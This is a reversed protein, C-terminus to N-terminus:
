PDTRCSDTSFEINLDPSTLMNASVYLPKPRVGKYPARMLRIKQMMKSCTEVEKAFLEICLYTCLYTLSSIIEDSQMMKQTLEFKKWIFHHFIGSYARLKFKKCEWKSLILITFCTIYFALLISQFWARTQIWSVYKTHFGSSLFLSIITLQILHKTWGM